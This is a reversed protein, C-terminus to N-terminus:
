SVRLAWLSEPDHVGTLTVDRWKWIASAEFAPVRNEWYDFAAPAVGRPLGKSNVGSIDVLRDPNRYPFPHLVVRDIISFLAANAGIGLALVGIVLASFGPSKWLSRM